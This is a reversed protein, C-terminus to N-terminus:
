IKENRERRFCIYIFLGAIIAAIIEFIIDIWDFTGNVWKTNQLFEFIIGWAIAITVAIFISNIKKELFNYICFVLSYNWFMDIVHNRTIEFLINSKSVINIKDFLTYFVVGLLIPGAINILSIIVKNKIIEM